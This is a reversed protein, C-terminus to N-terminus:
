DRLDAINALATWGVAIVVLGLMVVHLLECRLISWGRGTGLTMLGRYAGVLALLGALAVFCRGRAM